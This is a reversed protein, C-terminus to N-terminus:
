ATQLLDSVLRGLHREAALRHLDEPRDVDWRTPL